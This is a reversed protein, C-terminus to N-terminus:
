PKQEVMSEMVLGLWSFTHLGLTYVRGDGGFPERECKRRCTRDASRNACERDVM